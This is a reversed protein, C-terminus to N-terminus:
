PRISWVVSSAESDTEEASSLQSEWVKHRSILELRQLAIKRDREWRNRHLEDHAMESATGLKTLDAVPFKPVLKLSYLWVDALFSKAKILIHAEPKACADFM